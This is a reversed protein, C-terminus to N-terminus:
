SSSLINFKNKLLHFVNFISYSFLFCFYPLIVVQEKEWRFYFLANSFVVYGFSILTVLLILLDNNLNKKYYRFLSIFFSIICLITVLYNPVFEYIKRLFSFLHMGPKWVYYGYNNLFPDTGNRKMNIQKYSYFGYNLYDYDQGIDNPFFYKPALYKLSQVSDRLTSIIYRLFYKRINELFVRVGFEDGIKLGFYYTAPSFATFFDFPDKLTINKLLQNLTEDNASLIYLYKEKYIKSDPSEVNINEIAYVNKNDWPLISNLILLRKTEIGTNIDLKKNPVLRELRQLLIWAKDYTLQTTGTSRLHFHLTYVNVILYFVIFFSLSYTLLQKINKRHEYFILAILPIIFFITNYKILYCVTFTTALLFFYIYKKNSIIEYYYNKAMITMLILLNAQLWEPYTFSITALVGWHCTYVISAIIAIRKSFIKSIEKYFLYLVIISIFHQELMLVYVFIHEFNHVFNRILPLRWFLGILYPYGSAHILNSTGHTLMHYYNVGDEGMNLSFSIMFLIHILVCIKIANPIKFMLKKM